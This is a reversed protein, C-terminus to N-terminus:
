CPFKFVYSYQSDMVLAKDARNQRRWNEARTHLTRKDKLSDETKLFEPSWHQTSVSRFFELQPMLKVNQIGEHGEVEKKADADLALNFWGSVVGDWEHQFIPNNPQVKKKLFEETKKTDTDNKARANYFQVDRAVLNPGDAEPSSRKDSPSDENINDSDGYFEAKKGGPTFYFIDEYSEVAKKAEDDLVLHWWGSVKGDTDFFHNFNSGPKVKGALFEETKTVNSGEKALCTWYPPADRRDLEDKHTDQARDKDADMNRPIKPESEEPPKANDITERSPPPRGAVNGTRASSSSKVEPASRKAADDTGFEVIAPELEINEIGEHSQVEQLAADDLILNAWGTITKDQAEIPLISHGRQVKTKLFKETEQADATKNALAHYRAFDRRAMENQRPETPTVSGPTDSLSNSAFVSTISQMWLLLLFLIRM